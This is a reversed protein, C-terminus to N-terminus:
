VLRWARRRPVTGPPTWAGQAFCPRGGAPPSCRFYWPCSLPSTTPALHSAEFSNALLSRKLALTLRHDLAITLCLAPQQDPWHFPHNQRANRCCPLSHPQAAPHLPGLPARREPANPKPTTVGSERKARGPMQGRRRGMPALPWPSRSTGM